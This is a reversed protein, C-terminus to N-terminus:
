LWKRRKFYIYMLVSSVVMLGVAFYFGEISAENPILEFNM